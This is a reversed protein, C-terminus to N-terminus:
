GFLRGFFSRGGLRGGGPDDPARSRNAVKLAAREDTELAIKQALMVDGEVLSGEPGFCLSDRVSGERDLEHVNFTRGRLIKYRTGTDAGTVEFCCREEYQKLQAPSLWERLLKEGRAQREAEHLEIPVARWDRVGASIVTVDSGERASDVALAAPRLADLMEPTLDSLALVTM